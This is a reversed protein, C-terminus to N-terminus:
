AGTRKGAQSSLRMSPSTPWRKPPPAVQRGRGDIGGPPEVRDASGVIPQSIFNDTDDHSWLLEEVRQRLEADDQCERELVCARDAPRPHEVALLFVAQVREPDVPM